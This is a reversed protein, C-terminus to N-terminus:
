SSHQIQTKLMQGRIENESSVESNAKLHKGMVTRETRPLLNSTLHGSERLARDVIQARKRV